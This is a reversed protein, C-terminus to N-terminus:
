QFVGEPEIDDWGEGSMCKDYFDDEDWSRIGAQHTKVWCNVSDQKLEQHSRGNMAYSPIHSCGAMILITSIFLILKSM